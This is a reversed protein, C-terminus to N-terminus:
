YDAFPAEPLGLEIRLLNLASSEPNRRYQQYERARILTEASEGPDQAQEERIWEMLMPLKSQPTTEQAAEHDPYRSRSKENIRQCLELLEPYHSILIDAPSSEQGSAAAQEEQLAGVRAIIERAIDPHGWMTVGHICWDEVFPELMAIAVTWPPMKIMTENYPMKFREKTWIDEIVTGQEYHDVMQYCSPRMATWNDLMRREEGSYRRGKEELFWEIGSLGNEYVQFFYAWMNGAGNRLSGLVPDFRQCKQHEFNWEGGQKQAVFDYLDTTLKYKRDFFRRGKAQLSLEEAQKLMCCRKYKKGSGCPCPDNREIM